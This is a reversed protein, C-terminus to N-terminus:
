KGEGMPVTSVLPRLEASGSGWSFSVAFGWCGAQEVCLRQCFLIQLSESQLVQLFLRIEWESDILGLSDLQRDVEVRGLALLVDDGALSELILLYRAPM